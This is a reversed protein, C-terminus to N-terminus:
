LLNSDKLYEKLVLMDQWMAAKNSPARLLYSPHFVVFAKIVSGDELTYDLMKGHAKTIPEGNPFLAKYSISGVLILIKPKIISIHKKIYPLFFKVEQATPTRNGPPRWPVINTIYLNMKRDLGITQFIESLLQGSQGIFPEGAKDEEEGPAEGIAMIQTNNSTVVPTSFVTNQAFSKLPHDIQNEIYKKLEERTKLEDLNIMDTKEQESINILKLDINTSKNNIIENNKVVKDLVLQQSTNPYLSTNNIILGEQNCQEQSIHIKEDNEKQLYEHTKILEGYTSIGQSTQINCEDKWVGKYGLMHYLQLGELLDKKM